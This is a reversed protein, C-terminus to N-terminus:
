LRPCRYALAKWIRSSGTIWRTYEGITPFGVVTVREGVSLRNAQRTLIEINGTTDQVFLEKGVRQLTVVGEIRVRHGSSRNPNFRLIGSITSPSITFADVSPHEVVELQASAPVYLRAGVWEDSKNFIAGVVGKMRVRSDVLRAAQAESMWHVWALLEGGSIAVQLAVSSDVAPPVPVEDRVVAHVVGEVEAWQSDEESTALRDFDLRKVPPMPAAGVVRVRAKSIQPAFDPCQTFGELEIVQGAAV